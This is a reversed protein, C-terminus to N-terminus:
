AATAAHQEKFAKLVDDIKKKLEDDLIKKERISVLLDSAQTDLYRYLGTEFRGADSV